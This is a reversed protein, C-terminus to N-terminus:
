IYHLLTGKLHIASRLFNSLLLDGPSSFLFFVLFWLLLSISINYSGQPCKDTEAVLPKLKLLQIVVPSLVKPRYLLPNLIFVVTYLMSNVGETFPYFLFFVNMVLPLRCSFKDQCLLWNELPIAMWTLRPEECPYFKRFCSDIVGLLTHDRGPTLCFFHAPLNTELLKLFPIVVQM